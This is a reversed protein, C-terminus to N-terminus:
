ATIEPNTGSRRYVVNGVVVMKIRTSAVGILATFTITTTGVGATTAMVAGATILSGPVQQSFKIESM